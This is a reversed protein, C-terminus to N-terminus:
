QLILQKKQYTQKQLYACLETAIKKNIVQVTSHAHHITIKGLVSRVKPHHSTLLSILDKKTIKDQNGLNISFATSGNSAAGNSASGNTSRHSPSGNTSRSRSYSSTSQRSYSSSSSSSDRYNRADPQPIDHATLYSHLRSFGAFNALRLILEEKSLHELATVFLNKYLEPMNNALPMTKIKDALHTIQQTCIDKGTPVAFSMINTGITRAIQKIRREQHPTSLILSIGSKGARATRGSRHTYQETTDPLAYHIVHTVNDIDLGRAAVDTAVLLAVQRSSFKKMVRLRQAQSLDGHLADVLYGERSLKDALNQTDHKTRCFIIGYMDPHFDIFRKLTDYQYTHTVLTYYHLLNQATKQEKIVQIRHPDRMWKRAIAEVATPMTASFLWVLRSSPIHSFISAIDDEFGKNFMEDAEDLIAVSITSLSLTRQQIHDLLRGPTAVVVQAGNKLTRIQQRIDSGGYLCAVSVGPIHTAFSTLAASIQICLERTPCVILAQVQKKKPDIHHLLPLGFAATKGTGTQALAIIDRKQSILFPIVAEQIPTLTVYGADSVASILEQKLGSQDFKM